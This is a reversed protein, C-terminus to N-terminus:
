GVGGVGWFFGVLVPSFIFCIDLKPMRGKDSFPNFTKQDATALCHLIPRRRPGGETWLDQPDPTQLTLSQSTVPGSQSPQGATQEGM